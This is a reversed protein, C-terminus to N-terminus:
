TLDDRLHRIAEILDQVDGLSTHPNMLVLRLYRTGRFCTTSLYFRGQAILQDRIRLQLKDDGHVRFCLINSEPAVPCLMDGQTQLWDYVETTLAVQRDLTDALGKEGLAALVLFIIILIVIIPSFDIGGYMMPIRKRIQILVPETNRAAALVADADPALFPAMKATRNM